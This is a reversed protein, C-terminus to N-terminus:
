GGWCCINVGREFAAETRRIDRIAISSKDDLWGGLIEVLYDFSRKYWFCWGLWVLPVVLHVLDM